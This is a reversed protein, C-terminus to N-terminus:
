QALMVRQRKVTVSVNRVDRVLLDDADRLEGSEHSQKRPAECDLFADPDLNSVLEDADELRMAHRHVEVRRVEARLHASHALTM